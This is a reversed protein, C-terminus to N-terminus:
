SRGAGAGTGGVGGPRASRSAAPTGRRARGVMFAVARNMKVPSLKTEPHVTAWVRFVEDAFGQGVEEVQNFDLIAEGFRELGNVSRRAESRSVFRTGITFLKVVIRTRQFESDRTYADFVESLERRPRTAAEFRVRTGRRTPVEGVAVDGRINDVT